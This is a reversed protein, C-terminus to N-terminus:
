GRTQLYVVIALIVLGVVASAIVIWHWDRSPEAEVVPEPEPAPPPAVLPAQLLVTPEMSAGCRICVDAGLLNQESCAPCAATGVSQRGVAGPLRRLSDGIGRDELVVQSPIWFLPFDCRACFDTASRRNLTVRAPHGCEPCTVERTAPELVQEDPDTMEATVAV